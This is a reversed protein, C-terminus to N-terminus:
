DRCSDIGFEFTSVTFLRDRVPLLLVIILKLVDCAIFNFLYGLM